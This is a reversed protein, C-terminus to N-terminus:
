YRQVSPDVELSWAEIGGTLNYVNQFGRQLYYEAARQSRIGHHCHFVLPTDLDLDELDRAVDDTLLRAQPLQAIAREEPTRVDIVMLPEGRDLRAKLERASLSRVHPPQNPNHIKFAAGQETEVYDISLGDARGASGPDLFLRLGDADVEVDTDSAEGVSLDHGFHPSIQLRICESPAELAAQLALRARETVTIQPAQEQKM